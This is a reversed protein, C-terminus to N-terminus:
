AFTSATVGSVRMGNFRLPTTVNSQASLDVKTQHSSSGTADHTSFTIGGPASLAGTVKLTTMGSVAPRWVYGENEFVLDGTETVTDAADTTAGFVRANSPVSTGAKWGETADYDLFRVEDGNFSVLGGDPATVSEKGAVLFKGSGSSSFNVIGGPDKTFATATLTGGKVAVTGIGEGAVIKAVTTSGSAEKPEFSFKGTKVRLPVGNAGLVDAGSGNTVVVTGSVLDFSTMNAPAKNFILWGSGKKALANAGDGQLELNISPLSKDNYNVLSGAIWPNGGVFAIPNGYFRLVQLLAFDLSKLQLGSVNQNIYNESASRDIPGIGSSFSARGGGRAYSYNRWSRASNWSRPQWANSLDNVSDVREVALVSGTVACAAAVLAFSLFSKM